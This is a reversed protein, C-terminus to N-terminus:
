RCRRPWSSAAWSALVIEQRVIVAITGLRRGAGARGRRGHLGAGPPRQVVPLGPGRRGHRRLLDAARGRGPHLSCCTSPTSRRQRDRLRVRGAGLGGDGGAHHGPRGPRRDPEGRQQHRRHRLLDPMFGWVGLPYSITKFFPV